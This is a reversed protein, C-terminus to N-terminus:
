ENPLNGGLAKLIEELLRVKYKEIDSIASEAEEKLDIIDKISSL